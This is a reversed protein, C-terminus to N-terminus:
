KGGRSRKEETKVACLLPVNRERPRSGKVVWTKEVIRRVPSFQGGEYKRGERLEPRCFRSSRPSLSLGAQGGAARRGARVEEGGCVRESAREKTGNLARENGDM